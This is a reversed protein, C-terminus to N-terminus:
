ADAGGGAQAQRHRWGRVGAQEFPVDPEGTPRWYLINEATAGLEDDPKWVAEVRMGIRAEEPPCEAVLNLFGCDAGDIFIWASIYPLELDDRGPIPVKTICFSGIHGTHAMEVFETCAAGHRPDVGRPPTFVAGDVPSVNGLVKKDGFNHLYTQAAVGPTFTYEMRVPTRVSQVPEVDRLAEPITVDSM